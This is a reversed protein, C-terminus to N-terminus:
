TVGQHLSRNGCTLLCFPKLSQHWYAIPSCVVVAGPLRQKFSPDRGWLRPFHCGSSWRETGSNSRPRGFVHLVYALLLCGPLPGGLGCLIAVTYLTSSQGCLALAGSCVVEVLYLACALRGGHCLGTQPEMAQGTLTKITSAGAPHVREITCV